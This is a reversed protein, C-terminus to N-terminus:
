IPLTDIMERTIVFAPGDPRLPAANGCDICLMRSPDVTMQIVAVTVHGAVPSLRVAKTRMGALEASLRYRGGPPVNLFQFCGYQDSIATLVSKGQTLTITVGPLAGAGRLAVSGVIKGATAVPSPEDSPCTCICTPPAAVQGYGTVAAMFYISAIIMALADITRRM